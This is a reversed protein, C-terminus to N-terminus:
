WVGLRSPAAEVAAVLLGPCPFFGVPYPLRGLAPSWAAGARGLFGPVPHARPHPCDPAPWLFFLPLAPALPRGGHDRGEGRVRDGELQRAGSLGGSWVLQGAGRWFMGLLPPRRSGHRRRWALGRGPRPPPWGDGWFGSVERPSPALGQVSAIYREVEAKSRRMAGGVQGGPRSLGASLGATTVTESFM